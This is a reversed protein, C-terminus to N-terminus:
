KNAYTVALSDTLRRRDAFYSRGGFFSRGSETENVRRTIGVTSRGVFVHANLSFVTDYPCHWKSTKTVSFMGFDYLIFKKLAMNKIKATAFTSALSQGAM